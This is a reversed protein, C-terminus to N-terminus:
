FEGCPRRGKSGMPYRSGTKLTAILLTAQMHEKLLNYATDAIGTTTLLGKCRQPTSPSDMQLQVQRLVGPACWDEDRNTGRLNYIFPLPWNCASWDLRLNAARSQSEKTLTGASPLIHLSRDWRSEIVLGSSKTLDNWLIEYSCCLVATHRALINQLTRVRSLLLRQMPTSFAVWQEQQIHPIGLETNPQASTIRHARLQRYKREPVAALVSIAHV